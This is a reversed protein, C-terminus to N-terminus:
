FTVFCVCYLIGASVDNWLLPQEVVLLISCFTPTFWVLKCHIKNINRSTILLINLYKNMSIKMQKSKLGLACVCVRVCVCVCVCVCVGCARVCVCAYVCVCVCVCAYVCVCSYSVLSFMCYCKLM